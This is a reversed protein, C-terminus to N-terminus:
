KALGSRSANLYPKHNETVANASLRRPIKPILSLDVQSVSSENSHYTTVSIIGMGHFTGCGDITRIDHDVNDAVFQTLAPALESEQNSACPVDTRVAHSPLLEHSLHTDSLSCSSTTSLVTIM